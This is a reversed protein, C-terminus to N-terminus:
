IEEHIVREERTMIDCSYKSELTPCLAGISLDWLGISMTFAVVPSSGMFMYMWM